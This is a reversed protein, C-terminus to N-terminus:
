SAPKAQELVPLQALRLVLRLAENVAEASTFAAAVDPALLVLNVGEQYQTAYKGRVGDKLLQALNYAPRLDNETQLGV